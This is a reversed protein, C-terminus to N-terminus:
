QWSWYWVSEYPSEFLRWFQTAIGNEAAGGTLCVNNRIFDPSCPAAMAWCQRAREPLFFNSPGTDSQGRTWWAGKCGALLCACVCRYSRQNLRERTTQTWSMSFATFSKMEATKLLPSAKRQLAARGAEGVPALQRQRTGQNTTKCTQKPHEISSLEQKM